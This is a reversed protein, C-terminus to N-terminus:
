KEREYNICLYSKKGFYNCHINILNNKERNRSRAFAVIHNNKQKEGRLLMKKSSSAIVIFSSKQTNQRIWIVM